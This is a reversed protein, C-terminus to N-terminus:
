WIVTICFCSTSIFLNSSNKNSTSLRHNVPLLGLVNWFPKAKLEYNRYIESTLLLFSIFILATVELFKISLSTSGFLTSNIQNYIASLNNLIMWTKPAKCRYAASTTYKYCVLFQRVNILFCKWIEPFVDPFFVLSFM